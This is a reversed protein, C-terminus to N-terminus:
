PHHIEREDDRLHTESILMIDIKNERLFLGVMRRKRLLPQANWHVVKLLELM